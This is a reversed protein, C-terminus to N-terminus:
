ETGYLRFIGRAITTTEFAFRISNARGFIISTTGRYTGFGKIGMSRGADNVGVGEFWVSPLTNADDGPVITVLYNLTQDAASGARLSSVIRTM